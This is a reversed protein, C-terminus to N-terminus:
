HSEVDHIVFGHNGFSLRICTPAQGAKIKKFLEPIQGYVQLYVSSLSM